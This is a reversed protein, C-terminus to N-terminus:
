RGAVVSQLLAVLARFCAFPLRAPETQVTRESREKLVIKASSEKCVAGQVCSKCVVLKYSPLLYYNQVCRNRPVLKHDKSHTTSLNNCHTM